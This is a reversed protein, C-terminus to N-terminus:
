VILSKNPKPTNKVNNAAATNKKGFKIYPGYRGELVLIDGFDHITSRAKKELGERVIEIAQDLEIKLPQLSIMM